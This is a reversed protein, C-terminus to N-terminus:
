AATYAAINLPQTTRLARLRELSELAADHVNADPDEVARALQNLVRSLAAAAGMRGLARASAERVYSDDDRLLAALADTLGPLAAAEGLQGVILAAASRVYADEDALLDRLRTLLPVTAVRARQMGLARAAACRTELDGDHIAVQLLIGVLLESLESTAQGLLRAAAARVHSSGDHLCEALLLLQSESYAGGTHRLSQIAGFRSQWEPDSLQRRLLSFEHVAAFAALDQALARRIWEVRPNSLRRLVSQLTGLELALEDLVLRLEPNMRLEREVLSPGQYHFRRANHVLYNAGPRSTLEALALVAQLPEHEFASCFPEITAFLLFSLVSDSGGLRLEHLPNRTFPTLRAVIQERWTAQDFPM